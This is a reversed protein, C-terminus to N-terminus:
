CVKQDQEQQETAQKWKFCVWLGARCIRISMGTMGKIIENM